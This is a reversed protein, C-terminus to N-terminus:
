DLPIRAKALSLPVIFLLNLGLLVCTVGAVNLTKQIAINEGKQRIKGRGLRRPL